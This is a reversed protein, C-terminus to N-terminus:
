QQYAVLFIRDILERYKEYAISAVEKMAPHVPGTSELYRVDFFHAWAAINGTMIVETKLSNTLVQRAHEPKCGQQLMMMYAEESKQNLDFWTKYANEYQPDLLYTPEIVTIENDFKGSSYNCYRTSSQAFNFTQHRVLEHSVGRDCEFKFTLYIHQRMEFISLLDKHHIDKDFLTHNHLNTFSDGILIESYAIYEGNANRLKYDGFRKIINDQSDNIGDPVIFNLGNKKCFILAMYMLFPEESDLLAQLNGSIITVSRPEPYEERNSAIYITSNIYKQNCSLVSDPSINYLRASVIAHRLMSLHKREYLGKIFPIYSTPTVRDESKYCIRGVREINKVDPISDLLTVNAKEIKM